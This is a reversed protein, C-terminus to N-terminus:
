SKLMERKRRTGLLYGPLKKLSEINHVPAFIDIYPWACKMGIVDPTFDPVGGLPNLWIVKNSYRYIKEMSQRLLATDGTDWGDSVIVVVAKKNLYLHGYDQIFIRFSHGIKTGSAWYNTSKTLDKLARDFNKHVLQPSVHYISTNFVFTEIRRYVHQFAYLFQILFRSYLEMSKSVDCLIVLSLDTEKNKRYFLDIM